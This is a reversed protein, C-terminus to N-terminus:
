SAREADLEAEFEEFPRGPEKSAQIMAITDYIDEYWEPDNMMKQAFASQDEDPLSQFMKWLAEGLAGTMTKGSRASYPRAAKKTKTTTRRSRATYTPAAEAVKATGKRKKTVM